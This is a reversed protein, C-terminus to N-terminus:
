LLIGAEASVIIYHPRRSSYVSVANKKRQHSLDAHEKSVSGDADLESVVRELSRPNAPDVNRLYLGSFFHCRKYVM